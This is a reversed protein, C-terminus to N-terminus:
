EVDFETVTRHKEEYRELGLSILEDILESYSLGTAEWLKPYMSFQTFGPMTNIENVLVRNTEKELFFDVRALGTCDVAQYAAIALKRIEDSTESSIPAPITLVSEGTLYKAQYDYFENSSVVEGAVSAKPTDNGLVAVEIERVDIGQEVIIRRDYRAATEIASQLDKRNKAKSIGVSSGLNAPKVFCPYAISAEVQNLVADSNQEFNRRTFHTFEVQPLGAAGFLKKMFVKDMGVASALVGAGVYPVDVIELLGQMTGDEGFSGHLVPIVIDIDTALRAPVIDTQAVDVSEEEPTDSAGLALATLGSQLQAVAGEGILWRGTKTIGIPIVEFKEKNLARMVSKASQISVEHEGSKGGFLVGVKIKQTM